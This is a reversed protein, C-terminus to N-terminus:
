GAVGFKILVLYIVSCTGPLFIWFAALSGDLIEAWWGETGVARIAVMIDFMPTGM